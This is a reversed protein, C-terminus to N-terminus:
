LARAKLSATSLGVSFRKEGQRLSRRKACCDPPADLFAPFEKLVAQILSISYGYNRLEVASLAKLRCPAPTQRSIRKLRFPAYIKSAFFLVARLVNSLRRTVFEHAGDEV